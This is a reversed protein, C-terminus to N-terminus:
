CAQVKFFYWFMNQNTAAQSKKGSFMDFCVPKM